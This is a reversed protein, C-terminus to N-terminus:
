FKYVMGLTVVHAGADEFEGNIIQNNPNNIERNKKQDYLYAGGLELNDSTKYKFGLSYLMADSGPLEFGITDSPIPTEDYAIGFMATFKDTCRHTIGLRYANSNNWNKEVPNDFVATMAANLLPNTSLTGSFEFDLEEYESWFTRDWTLEVTTKDFIYSTALSFVAPTVVTVEGNGTYTDSLSMSPIAAYLNVDGGDLTLDIQTRYTASITLDKIPKFTTALNWGINTDSGEIDRRLVTATPGAGYDIPLVGDTKVKNGDSHMIRAGVAMSFREDFKYSITPNGEFTQLTFEETFTKPYPQDWCKSLGYPVVFSFGFRFGQYDPSVAHFMPVFIDETNSSGRRSAFNDDTYNIHPLYIYSASVEVQWRDEQWVMNAPNYYATDPGNSSAIYANSLAVANISQEPIRYGSGYASGAIFVGLAAMIAIKKRMEGGM